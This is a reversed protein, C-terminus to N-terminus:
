PVDSMISPYEYNGGGSGRAEEAAIIRDLAEVTEYSSIIQPLEMRADSKPFGMVTDVHASRIQDRISRLKEIYDAHSM